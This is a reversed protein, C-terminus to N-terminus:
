RTPANANRGALIVSISYATQPDLGAMIQAATDSNMRGLFGAAFEPEMAEFLKAADKPKMNEYVNTLRTLDNEAATESQALTQKLRKEAAELAEIRREIETKAVEIAKEKAGLEAELAEVAAERARLADLLTQVEGRNPKTQSNEKAVLAKKEPEEAKAMDLTPETAALAETASGGLRITASALLLASIVLISGKGNGKFRRKM